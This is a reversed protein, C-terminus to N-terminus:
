STVVFNDRELSTISSRDFVFVRVDEPFILLIKTLTAGSCNVHYRGPDCWCENPCLIAM